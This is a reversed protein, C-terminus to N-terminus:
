LHRAGSYWVHRFFGLAVYRALGMKGVFEDWNEKLNIMEVILGVFL